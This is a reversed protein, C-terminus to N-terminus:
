TTAQDVQEGHSAQRGPQPFADHGSPPRLCFSPGSAPLLPWVLSDEEM